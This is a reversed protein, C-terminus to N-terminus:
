ENQNKNLLKKIQHKFLLFAVGIELVRDQEEGEVAFTIIKIFPQLLLRFLQIGVVTAVRDIGGLPFELYLRKFGSGDCTM